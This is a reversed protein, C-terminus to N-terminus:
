IFRRASICIVQNSRALISLRDDQCLSLSKIRHECVVCVEIVSLRAYVAALRADTEPTKAGATLTKEELTLEEREADAQLVSALAPTDDGEVEQEVHLLSIHNPLSLERSSMARLLTSKGSGNRGVLGYRRGYLLQISAGELLRVGAAAVDFNDLRVDRTKGQANEKRQVMAAPASAGKGGMGDRKDKRRERRNELAKLKTEDPGPRRYDTEPQTPTVPSSAKM